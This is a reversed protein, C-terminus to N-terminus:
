ATARSGASAACAVASVLRVDGTADQLELDVSGGAFCGRCSILEVRVLRGAQGVEQRPQVHWRVDAWSSHRNASIPRFLVGIGGGIEVARKWRQIVRDSLHESSFWTVGVAPCRLCQEVAWASDQVSSPRLLLLSELPIGWGCAAPPHFEGNPDIVAWVLHQELAVRVGQLALIAAGSGDTPALWEVLSGSELGQGPLLADLAPIGLSLRPPVEAKVTHAAKGCLQRLARLTEARDKDGVM